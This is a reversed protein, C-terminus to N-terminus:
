KGKRHFRLKLNIEGEVDCEDWPINLCLLDRPRLECPTPEHCPAPPEPATDGGTPSPLVQTPDGGLGEVKAALGNLWRVFIPNHRGILIDTSM